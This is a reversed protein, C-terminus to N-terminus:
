QTAERERAEREERRWQIDAVRDRLEFESGSNTSVEIKRIRRGKKAGVSLYYAANKYFM